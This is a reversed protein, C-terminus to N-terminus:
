APTPSDVFQAVFYSPNPLEGTAVQVLKDWSYRAGHAIFREVLLRGAAPNEVLGGTETM